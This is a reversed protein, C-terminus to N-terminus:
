LTLINMTSSFLLNCLIFTLSTAVMMTIVAWYCRREYPLPTVDADTIVSARLPIFVILRHGKMLYPKM